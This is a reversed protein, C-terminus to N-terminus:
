GVSIVRENEKKGYSFRITLKNPFLIGKINEPWEILVIAYSDNMISDFDLARLDKKGRLRYADLHYITLQKKPRNTKKRQQRNNTTQQKNVGYRKMIVFTPSAALPRVGLAKLFGLTFTTKGAGLDGKLLLTYAGRHRSRFLHRAVTAGLQQTVTASDSCFRIHNM